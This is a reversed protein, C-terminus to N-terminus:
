CTKHPLKCIEFKGQKSTGCVFYALVHGPAVMRPLTSGAPISGPNGSPKKNLPCFVSDSSCRMHQMQCTVNQIHGAQSFSGLEIIFGRKGGRFRSSRCIDIISNIPISRLAGARFTALRVHIQLISCLVHDKGVYSHGSAFEVQWILGGSGSMGKYLM